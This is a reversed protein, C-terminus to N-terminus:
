TYKLCNRAFTPLFRKTSSNPRIVTSEFSIHKPLFLNTVLARWILNVLVTIMFLFLEQEVALITFLTSVVFLIGIVPLETIIYRKM